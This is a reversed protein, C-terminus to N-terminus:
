LCTYRAPLQGDLLHACLSACPGGNPAFIKLHPSSNYCFNESPPPGGGGRGLGTQRSPTARFRPQKQPCMDRKTDRKLSEGADFAVNVRYAHWLPISSGSPNVRGRLGGRPQRPCRLAASCPAPSPRSPRAPNSPPPTPEVCELGMSQSFCPVRECAGM